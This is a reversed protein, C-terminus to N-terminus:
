AKHILEDTANKWIGCIYTNHQATSHQTVETTDSGKYGQQVMVWCARRDMPNELCSYQLPNIHGGGPFRGSGPLSGADRIDGVNASPKKVVLVLQSGRPNLLLINKMWAPSLPTSGPGGQLRRIIYSLVSTGQSGARCPEIISAGTSEGQLVPSNPKIDLKLWKSIGLPFLASHFVSSTCKLCM